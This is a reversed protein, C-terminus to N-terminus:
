QITKPAKNWSGYGPQRAGPPHAEATNWILGQVYSQPSIVDNVWNGMYWMTIINKALGNYLSDPMLKNLIEENLKGPNDRNQKLIGAAESLFSEITAISNKNLMVNFYTELMGTGLLEIESFGTLYVSIKLFIDTENKISKM